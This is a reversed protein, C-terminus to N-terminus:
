VAVDRKAMPNNVAQKSGFLVWLSLVLIFQSVCLNSYNVRDVCASSNINYRFITRLCLIHVFRNFTRQRQCVCMHCMWICQIYTHTLYIYIAKEEGSHHSDCSQSTLM